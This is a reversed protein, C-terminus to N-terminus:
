SEWITGGDADIESPIEKVKKEHWKGRILIRVDEEVNYEGRKRKAPSYIEVGGVSPEPPAEKVPGDVSPMGRFVGPIRSLDAKERNVQNDVPISAPKNQLSREGLALGSQNDIAVSAIQLDQPKRNTDPKAQNDNQPRLMVLEGVTNGDATLWIQGAQSLGLAERLSLAHLQRWTIYKSM